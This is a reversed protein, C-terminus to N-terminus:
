GQLRRTLTQINYVNRIRLSFRFTFLVIPAVDKITGASPLCILPIFNPIM